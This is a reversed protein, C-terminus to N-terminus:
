GGYSEKLVVTGAGDRVTVTDGGNNWVPSSEGWYRDGDGDTGSGTHLRVREGPALTGGAFTYGHDAEDTVTWGDLALPEEGADEFVVYEDNLNEGDPGAADANVRVVTLGSASVTAEATGAGTDTACAWLGRDAERADAASREYAARDTFDSEFVRAHGTEVLRHNFSVGDVYVYALLRGYYGREDLNPDPVLRVQQGALRERAFESAREGFRRLCDRGAETEPLGFEGPTNESYVEPTDVGILRVEDTTGDALEVEVTDGDVVRTVTASQGLASPLPTASVDPEAATTGPGGTEVVSLCGTLTVLAVLAVVAAAHGSV